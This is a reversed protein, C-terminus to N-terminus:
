FADEVHPYIVCLANFPYTPKGVLYHYKYCSQTYVNGKCFLLNLWMKSSVSVSLWSITGKNIVFMSCVLNLVIIQSWILYNGNGVKNGPKGQSVVVYFCGKQLTKGTEGPVHRFRSHRGLAMSSGFMLTIISSCLIGSERQITKKMKRELEGTATELIYQCERRSFFRISGTTNQM